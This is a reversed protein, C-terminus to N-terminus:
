ATGWGAISADAIPTLRSQCIGNMRRGNDLRVSVVPFGCCWSVTIAEVAGMGGAVEGAVYVRDGPRLAM